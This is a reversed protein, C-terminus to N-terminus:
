VVKFIEFPQKCDDCYGIARCPTPGFRNLLQTNGSGCYPCPAPSKEEVMEGMREPLAFGALSLM